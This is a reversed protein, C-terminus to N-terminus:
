KTTRQKNYSKFYFFIFKGGYDICSDNPKIGPLDYRERLTYDVFLDVKEEPVDGYAFKEIGKEQCFQFLEKFKQTHLEIEEKSLSVVHPEPEFSM